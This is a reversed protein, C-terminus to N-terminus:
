PRTVKIPIPSNKKLHDLVILSQVRAISPHPLLLNQVLGNLAALDTVIVRIMYDAEGTMTWVDIVEPTHAMLEVFGKAKEPTHSDMMIQLFAAIEAGVKTEDVVAHYSKIYGEKELRARRRACQSASRGVRDALAESHMRGDVQLLELIRSDVADM